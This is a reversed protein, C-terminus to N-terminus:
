GAVRLGVAVGVAFWCAATFIFAVVLGLELEDADFDAGTM